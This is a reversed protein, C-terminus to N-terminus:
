LSNIGHLKKVVSVTNHTLKSLSLIVETQEAIVQQQLNLRMNVTVAVVLLGLSVFAVIVYIYIDFKM